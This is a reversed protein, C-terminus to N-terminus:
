ASQLAARPPTALTARLALFALGAVLLAGALAGVPLPWWSPAYNLEFVQGALVWVAMQAIGAGVAGALLGLVAYEGVLGQLVVARRAGLARLLAIERVREDRTGEILALLVTLGAALTFLFIFEAARSLREMIARVQGMLLEVDFATVNPFDRILDRLLSRREPGLHFSTIWQAPADEIVGPPVVLFFNPKFSDWSVKRTNHVTLEIERDALRLRLRDGLKLKLREVAYEDASLWPQGQGAAGWWEGELVENAEPLAETWSLNFERNIWEQTEVDEFSDATVPEGNLAVLRGRAMPWLRPAPFGREAFFRALEARQQPQINILFQNPADPPLRDRWEALLDQRGIAVLMLAFLALGLAMIQTVSAGRRRAINALGFRWSTGVSRRLPRLAAVLAWALGALVLLTAVAGGLVIGALQADGTARWLLWAAALLAIGAVVRGGGRGALDRQFVRVPPTARAQWLAPLAFGALLLVGTLFAPWLAALPPPPLEMQLLGQALLGLVAQALGGVLLGALSAAAGLMLLSLALATAVRGGRAGLCKLLAVEDRLRQAHRAACISVACAALLAAALVALRLFRGARDLAERVEPRAEDPSLRRVGEPLDLADFRELEEPAGGLMLGYRVRSAPQLLESRALDAENLLLRPALDTFGGGRDPEYELVAVLKVLAAGVELQAGPELRLESWLRIDAWAEGPAPVGTTERVAGFPADAIRLRGRLPYGAQVAKIAALATAEGAIVVSATTTTRASRLGLTESQRQLEEPIPRRSTLLRDAGLADGSTAAMAADVRASFLSVASACAVAVAVALALVLLEGSKWGRRLRRVAYALLNM